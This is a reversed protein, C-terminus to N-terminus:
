SGPTGEEEENEKEGDLVDENDASTSNIDEKKGFIAEWNDSFKKQNVKRYRSGKGGSWVDSM